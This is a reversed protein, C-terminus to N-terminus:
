TQFSTSGEQLLAYGGRLHDRAEPTVFRTIGTLTRLLHLTAPEILARGADLLRVSSVRRDHSERTRTVLSRAELHDIAETMASRSVGTHMAIEATGLPEPDLTFLVMLVGFQLESLQYAGLTHHIATQLANTTDLHELVLRCCEANFGERQRAISLLSHAALTDVKKM